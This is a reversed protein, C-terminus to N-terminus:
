HLQFTSTQWQSNICNEEFDIIRPSAHPLHTHALMEFDDDIRVRFHMFYFPFTVIKVIDDTKLEHMKGISNDKHKKKRRRNNM